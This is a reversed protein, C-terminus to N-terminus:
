KVVEVPTDIGRSRLDDRIEGQYLPNLVLILSVDKLRADDPTTVEVGSTPMFRGRKRPNLDIAIDLADAAGPVVSAFSVGKSGAGWVAVTEGAKTLDRLRDSWQQVEAALDRGFSSPETPPRSGVGTGHGMRAHVSLYEDNFSSEVVIPELGNDTCLRLLSRATFYSPHEYIVDWLASNGVMYDADPVELYVVPDSDSWQRLGGLLQGPDALHELLHRAAILAPHLDAGAAQYTDNVVRVSGPGHYKDVRGDYSPDFGIAENNGASALMALFDGKGCGLEVVQRDRIGYASILRNALAAAFEQFAPSFHLSNEYEASYNLKTEDFSTNSIHSCVRCVALNIDGVPSDLAAARTPLLVNCFVPAGQIRVIPDLRTGGCVPCPRPMPDAEGPM